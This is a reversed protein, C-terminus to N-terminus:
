VASGSTELGLGSRFDTPSEGTVRRFVRNFQSVSQFGAERAADNVLKAPDRLLVKVKEVRVRALYDTFTVGTTKKFTKCLYFPSVNVAQAVEALPLEAAYREAILSKAKTILPPEGRLRSRYAKPSEGAVRRFVRNFQSLSQFGADYAIESVRMHPNLLLSKVREIRIRALYDTFTMGTAKKFTKCFYFASMNVHEAVDGLTVETSQREAIFAKAKTITPNEETSGQVLLQNSLASLHQAFIAMLRLISDYQKRTVVRTQYFATELSKVDFETGLQLLRRTARSFEAPTAEDMFVQGTQLFAILNRGVRVPVASDCMGAFCRLTTPALAASEEVKRQHQLCASCSHNTHAMLACFPSENPDGHHPLDFAEIPRLTIPLGTTERFAEEYDRFVTSRRLREVIMRSDQPSIQATEPPPELGPASPNM